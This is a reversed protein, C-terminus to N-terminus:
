KGRIDRVLAKLNMGEHIFLLILGVALTLLYYIIRFLVLPAILAGPEYYEGILLLVTAEVVGLGGPVNATLGFVSAILYVGAVQIFPLHPEAPLLFYLCGAACILELAGFSAQAGAKWIGPFPITWRWVKIESKKLLAASFYGLILATCIWGIFRTNSVPLKLGAPIVLPHWMFLIAAAAVAGVTYSFASFTIVAPLAKPSVGYSSFFRFRMSSSAFLSMGTNHSMSISIFSALFVKYFPLKEGANLIGVMEYGAIFLYSLFCFALSWWVAKWPLAALYSRWAGTHMAQFERYLAWACIVFLVVMIAVAVRQLWVFAQSRHKPSAGPPHKM